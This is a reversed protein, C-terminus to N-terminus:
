INIERKVLYLYVGIISTDLAVLFNGLILGICIMALQLKGPYQIVTDESRPVLALPEASPVLDKKGFLMGFKTAKALPAAPASKVSDEWAECRPNILHAPVPRPDSEPPM